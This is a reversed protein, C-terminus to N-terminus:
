TDWKACWQGDHAHGRNNGYVHMITCDNSRPFASCQFYARYRIRACVTEVNQVGIIRSALAWRANNSNDKCDITTWADNQFEGIWQYATYDDKPPQASSHGIYSWHELIRIIIVNKLNWFFCSKKRKKSIANFFVYFTVFLILNASQRYFNQCWFERIKHTSIPM